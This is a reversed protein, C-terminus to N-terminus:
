DQQTMSVDRTAARGTIINEPETTGFYYEMIDRSMVLMNTSSYGNPVRLAM